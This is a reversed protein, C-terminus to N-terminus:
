GEAKPFQLFSEVRCEFDSREGFARAVRRQMHGGTLGTALSPHITHVIFVDDEISLTFTGPTLTISNGLAVKAVSRDVPFRFRLIRPQIDMRPRLLIVALQLNALIIQGLLWLGYGVYRFPHLHALVAEQDPADPTMTRRTLLVVLGVSLVGYSLHLVDFKGSFAMWLIALGVIGLLGGGTRRPRVRGPAGHSTDSM